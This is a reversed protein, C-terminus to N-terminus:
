KPVRQSALGGHESAGIEPSGVGTFDCGQGVGASEYWLCRVDELVNIGQHKEDSKVSPYLAIKALVFM